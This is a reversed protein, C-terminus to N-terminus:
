PVGKEKKILNRIWTCALEMWSQCEPQICGGDEHSTEENALSLGHVGTPYLHLEVPVKYKHLAEFFLLSNEVPVCDDTVTHWLFTPPTDTTVQFELSQKKRKEPDSSDAGLLAEFSGMHAFKGSSIVPYSLIMGNPRVMETETHLVESIFKEKWFVGLSAALHAGASFGQLIIKATDIHFEEAHERLYAVSKALQLLALPYRAPAVSYRLIVAHYGRALYQMAIPEAERDSTMTYGGGPCIVIVPRKRDPRMEVSNGLIYTYLDATEQYGEVKIEVKKYIM